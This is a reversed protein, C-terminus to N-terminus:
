KLREFYDDITMAQMSPPRISDDSVSYEINMESISKDVMFNKCECRVSTSVGKRERFLKIEKEM